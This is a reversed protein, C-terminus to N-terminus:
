DRLTVSFPRQPRYSKQKAVSPFNGIQALVNLIEDDMRTAQEHSLSVAADRFVRSM